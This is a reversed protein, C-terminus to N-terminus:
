FEGRVDKTMKEIVVVDLGVLLFMEQELSGSIVNKESRKQEQNVLDEAVELKRWCHKM